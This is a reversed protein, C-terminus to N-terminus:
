GADLRRKSTMRAARGADMSLALVFLESLGLIKRQRMSQQTLGPLSVNAAEGKGSCIISCGSISGVM